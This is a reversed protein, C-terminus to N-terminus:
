FLGYPTDQVSQQLYRTGETCCPAVRHNRRCPAPSIAAPSIVRGALPLVPARKNDAPDTIELMEQRSRDGACTSADTQQMYIFLDAANNEAYEEPEIKQM